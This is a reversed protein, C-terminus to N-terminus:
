PSTSVEVIEDYEVKGTVGLIAKIGSEMGRNGLDVTDVLEQNHVKLLFAKGSPLLFGRDRHLRDLIFTKGEPDDESFRRDRFGVHERVPKGDVVNVTVIRSFEHLYREGEVEVLKRPDTEEEPGSACGLAVSLSLLVLPFSRSKM